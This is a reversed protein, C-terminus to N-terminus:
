VNIRKVTTRKRAAEPALYTAATEAEQKEKQLRLARLRATKADNAASAAALEEKVMGNRAQWVQLLGDATRLHADNKKSTDSMIM